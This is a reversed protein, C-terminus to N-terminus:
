QVEVLAPRVTLHSTFNAGVAKCSFDGYQGEVVVLGCNIRVSDTLVPATLLYEWDSLTNTADGVRSYIEATCDSTPASSVEITIYLLEAGEANGGTGTNIPTLDGSSHNGDIIEVSSQCTFTTRFKKFVENAM